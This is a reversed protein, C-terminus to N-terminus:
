KGAPGILEDYAARIPAVLTEPDVSRLRGLEAVVRLATTPENRGAADPGLYPSDTEVLFAGDALAGAAARPGTASGSRSPSRSASSSARTSSAGRWRRTVASPTFCAAVAGRSCRRRPRRTRTVTTSSCRCTAPRRRARAPARPAERQVEPPSLNRYFDLGIEGVARTRSDSVLSELRAWAREDMEAAHHPHVGVGADIIGPHRSALDLAAESSPVDWGPVCIREIGAEVARAIM